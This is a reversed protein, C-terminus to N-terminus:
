GLAKQLSCCIDGLQSVRKLDGQGDVECKGRRVSKIECRDQNVKQISVFCALRGVFVSAVWAALAKSGM